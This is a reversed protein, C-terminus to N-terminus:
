LRYPNFTNRRCHQTDFIYLPAPNLNEENFKLISDMFKVTDSLCGLGTGTIIADPTGLGANKLRM